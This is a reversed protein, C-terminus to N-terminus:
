AASIDKRLRRTVGLRHAHWQMAREIADDVEFAQSLRLKSKTNNLDPFFDSRRSTLAPQVKYVLQPPPSTRSAVMEAVAAHSVPLAGGVNYVEGDMGDSLIRLLWAAADSGYLYSRRTSGDGHLRIHNGSLADRIFNNAAWPADLPQHPGLFTFARATSTPIRYQSAYVSVLNEATRRSEAYVNHVRTFDLIGIDSEKLAQDTTHSGLVLGSSLNVFRQLLELRASATLANVMGNLAIEHILIPDSAHVRPDAVGAAFLVLTTDRPLEFVTRVDLYKVCVDGRAVLHPNALGWDAASRGLLDVRIRSGLEDNLAAISEAIWTGIFGTGGVIAIRHEALRRGLDPQLKLSTLCDQRIAHQLVDDFM